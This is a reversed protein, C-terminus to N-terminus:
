WGASQGTLYEDIEHLAHWLKSSSAAGRRKAENKFVHMVARIRDITVHPRQHV